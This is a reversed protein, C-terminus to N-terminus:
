LYESQNVADSEHVRTRIFFNQKKQMLKEIIYM